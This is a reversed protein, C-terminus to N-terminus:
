HKYYNNKKSGNVMQSLVARRTQLEDATREIDEYNKQSGTGRPDYYHHRGKAKEIEADTKDIEAQIDEPKM